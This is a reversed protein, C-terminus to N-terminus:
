RQQADGGLTIGVIAGDTDVLTVAIPTGIGVDVPDWHVMSRFPGCLEIIEDTIDFEIDSDIVHADIVRTFEPAVAHVITRYPRGEHTYHVVLNGNPLPVARTDSDTPLLRRAADEPLQAVAFRATKLMALTWMFHVDERKAMEAVGVVLWPVFMAVPFMIPCAFASVVGAFAGGLAAGVYLFKM